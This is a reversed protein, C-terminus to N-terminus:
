PMWRVWGWALAAGIVWLAVDRARLFGTHRWHLPTM